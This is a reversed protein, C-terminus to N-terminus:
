RKNSHRHTMTADVGANSNSQTSIMSSNRQRSAQSNLSAGHNIGLNASGDGVAANGSAESNLGVMTSSSRGRNAHQASASSSVQTASQIQAQSNAAVSNMDSAATRAARKNAQLAAQTNSNLTANADNQLSGNIQTASNLGSTLGGRQGSASAGASTSTRLTGGILQAHAAVAFTLFLSFVFVISRKMEKDGQSRNNSGLFRLAINM